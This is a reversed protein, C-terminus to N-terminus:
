RGVEMLYTPAIGPTFTRARRLNDRYDIEHIVGAGVDNVYARNADIRIVPPVASDGVPKALLTTRATEIGTLRDIARLVGDRGLALLPSREGATNVAMVPGTDLFTWTRTRIDLIWAGRGGAVAALVDSGPRYEFATARETDPVPHPYPIRTAIFGSEDKGVVVAGDACGFVVGRRTVAQGRPQECGEALQTVVPGARSHVTLRGSDEVVVLNEAFPVATGEIVARTTVTGAALDARDLLTTRDGENVAVVAADSYVTAAAQGLVAAERIEARYYHVHDGHDVTWAGGDVVRTSDGGVLYAFRDDALVGAINTVRGPDSIEGSVLDVVRVAGTQRDVVVLRRQEESVEQAGAVFGHPAPEADDGRTDTACAALPLLAASVVLVARLGGGWRRVRDGLGTILVSTRSWGIARPEARYTADPQARDTARSSAEIRHASPGHPGNRRRAIRDRVGAAGASVFFLSVAVGAITAGAATGAHWSVLLGACTAFMGFLAALVMVLPIRDAWYLAAAPPAILLGFVLLTGVIHFSAVIALTVLALLAAQALRPRLGLTAAKRPDFALAVFARHGLVVIVGAIGLAVTLFVLDDTRIGLVDGFLFGTVDVAFSQSRSVIIVGLALMGVFLLGIGTDASFRRSRGLASVGVAMAGASFAAGLLLNGGLLSAVAVGPLMGHAMADGLFAMGRVVVWTGALACLCSVLLGGWLARQVFAVQLPGLLWEM